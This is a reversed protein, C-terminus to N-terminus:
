DAWTGRRFPCPFPNDGPCGPLAGGETACVQNEMNVEMKGAKMSATSAIYGMCPMTRQGATRYASNTDEQVWSGGSYHPSATATFISLDAKLKDIDGASGTTQVFGEHEDIGRLAYYFKGDAVDEAPRLNNGAGVGNDKWTYRIICM